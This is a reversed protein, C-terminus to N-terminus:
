VNRSELRSLAARIAGDMQGLLQNDGNHEVLVERRLRGLQMLHAGLATQGRQRELQSQLLALSDLIDERIRGTPKIPGGEDIHQDVLKHLVNAEERATWMHRLPWLDARQAVERNDLLTAAAVLKLGKVMRRDSLREGEARLERLLQGYVPRIATLDVERLRDHLERIQAETVRALPTEDPDDAEREMRELELAWGRDLLADLESDGVPEVDLRLVFRDSFAQLTPDEPLENSAGVLTILPVRQRRAGNHFVREHVLTLLTNLIASSGQFVEDLFAVSADPLMRETRIEYRGAQFAPMDLPGFIESPETFRTLLYTFLPADLGRTFQTVLETKGTGPPGVLLTHEQCIASVALVDVVADRETFSNKLDNRLSNLRRIASQTTEPWPM